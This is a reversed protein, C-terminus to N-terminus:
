ASRVRGNRVVLTTGLALLMLGAATGAGIGADSWHFGGSEVIQISPAPTAFLRQDFQRGREQALIAQVPDAKARVPVGSTGVDHGRAREQEILQWVSAQAHAAPAAIAAVALVLIATRKMKQEKRERGGAAASACVTRRLQWLRALFAGNRHWGGNL